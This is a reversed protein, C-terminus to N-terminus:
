RRLVQVCVLSCLKSRLCIGYHLFDPNGLVCVYHNKPGFLGILLWVGDIWVCQWLDHM